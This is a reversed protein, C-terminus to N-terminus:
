GATDVVPAWAGTTVRRHSVWAGTVHEALQEADSRTDCTAVCESGVMVAYELWVDGDTTAEGGGGILTM